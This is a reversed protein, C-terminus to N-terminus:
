IKVVYNLRNQLVLRRENKESIAERNWVPLKELTSVNSISVM